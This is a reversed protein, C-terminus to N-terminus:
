MKLVSADNVLAFRSFKRTRRGFPRRKLISHLSSVLARIGLRVMLNLAIVNLKVKLTLHQMLFFLYAFMTHLQVQQQQKKRRSQSQCVSPTSADIKESLRHNYVIIAQVHSTKKYVTPLSFSIALKNIVKENLFHFHFYV